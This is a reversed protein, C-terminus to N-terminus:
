RWATAGETCRGWGDHHKLQGDINLGKGFHAARKAVQLKGEARDDMM